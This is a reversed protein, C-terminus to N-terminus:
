LNAMQWLALNDAPTYRHVAWIKSYKDGSYALPYYQVKYYPFSVLSINSIAVIQGLFVDDFYIIPGINECQKVIVPLIDRTMSLFCGSMYPSFVENPFVSKSLYYRSVSVRIPKGGVIKNGILANTRKQSLFQSVYAYPNFWMDNDARTYYQIHPCYYDTWNYTLIALLTLNMFHNKMDFQIIDHYYENEEKLMRDGEPDNEDQGAFFLHKVRVGNVNRVSGWSHRTGMRELFQRPGVPSGILVQPDSSCADPNNLIIHYPHPYKMVMDEERYVKKAYIVDEKFSFCKKTDNSHLVCDYVKKSESYLYDQVLSNRESFPMQEYERTAMFAKMDDYSKTNISLSPTDVTPSQSKDVTYQGISFSLYLFYAAIVFSLFLRRTNM